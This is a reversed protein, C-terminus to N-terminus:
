TLQGDRRSWLQKGQVLLLVLVVNVGHVNEAPDRLFQPETYIKKSHIIGM